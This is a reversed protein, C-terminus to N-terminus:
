ALFYKRSSDCGCLGQYIDDYLWGTNNLTFTNVNNSLGEQTSPHTFTIRTGLSKPKYLIPMYIALLYAGVIPNIYENLYRKQGTTLTDVTSTLIAIAVCIPGFVTRTSRCVSMFLQKPTLM